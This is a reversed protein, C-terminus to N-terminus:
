EAARRWTTKWFADSSSPTLGHQIQEIEIPALRYQRGRVWRALDEAHVVAIDKLDLPGHPTSASTVVIVPMVSRDIGWAALQRRVLTVKGFIRRKAGERPLGGCVIRRGRGVSVRGKWRRVDIVYVGSPGVLVNEAKGRVLEVRELFVYGHEALPRLVEAVKSM